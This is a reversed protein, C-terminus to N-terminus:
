SGRLTRVWPWGSWLWLWLWLLAGDDMVAGEDAAVLTARGLALALALALVPPPVGEVDEWAAM